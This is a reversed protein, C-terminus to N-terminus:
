QETCGNNDDSVADCGNDYDFFYYDFFFYDFFFYDFFDRRVRTNGVMESNHEAVLM